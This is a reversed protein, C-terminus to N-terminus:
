FLLLVSISSLLTGESGDKCAVATAVTVAASVRSRFCANISSRRDLRWWARSESFDCSFEM